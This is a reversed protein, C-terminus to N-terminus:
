HGSTQPSFLTTALMHILRERDPRKIGEIFREAAARLDRVEKETMTAALAAVINLADATLTLGQQEVYRQVVELLFVFREDDPPALTM